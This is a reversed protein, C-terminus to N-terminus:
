IYKLVKLRQLTCVNERRIKLTKAIKYALLM